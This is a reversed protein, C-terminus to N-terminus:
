LRLSLFGDYVDLFLKSLLFLVFLSIAWSVNKGNKKRLIRKRMGTKKRLIKKRM